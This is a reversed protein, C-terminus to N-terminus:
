LPPIKWAPGSTEPGAKKQTVSRCVEDKSKGRRTAFYPRRMFIQQM